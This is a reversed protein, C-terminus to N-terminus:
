WLIQVVLSLAFWICIPTYLITDWHGFLTDRERKFVGVVNGDGVARLTFVAVAVWLLPVVVGPWVGLRRMWVLVVLVVFAGVVVLCDLMTPRHDPKRSMDFLKPRYDHRYEPLVRDAFLRGGYGWYIHFGAIVLAALSDVVALVLALVSM